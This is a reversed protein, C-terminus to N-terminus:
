KFLKHNLNLKVHFICLFLSTLTKESIGKLNLAHGINWGEMTLYISINKSFHLILLSPFRTYYFQTHSKYKNIWICRHFTIAKKTVSHRRVYFFQLRLSQKFLIFCHHCHCRPVVLVKFSATLPETAKLRPM